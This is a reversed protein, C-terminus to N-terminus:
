AFLELVALLVICEIGMVFGALLTLFLARVFDYQMAMDWFPILTNNALDQMWRDIFTNGFFWDLQGQSLHARENWFWQWSDKRFAPEPRKTYSVNNVTQELLVKNAEKLQEQEDPPLIIASVRTQENARFSTELSYAIPAAVVLTLLVAPLIKKTKKM